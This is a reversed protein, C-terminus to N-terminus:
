RRKRARGLLLGDKFLHSAFGLAFFSAASLSAIMVLGTDGTTMWLSLGVLGALALAASTGAPWRHTVGRHPPLLFALLAVALGGVLVALVLTALPLAPGQLFLEPLAAEDLAAAIMSRATPQGLLWFALLTSVAFLALRLRRHPISSALDVDPFGAGLLTAPLGVVVAIFVASESLGLRGGLLYLTLSVALWWGIGTAKHDQYNAM